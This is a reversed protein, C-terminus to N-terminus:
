HFRKERKLRQYHEPDRQKFARAPNGGAVSLPEIRGAVVSGAAIIAGEGIWAGPLVLVDDGFWVNDGITVPKRVVESDYPLATAGQWRHNVTIIKCGRGSHFNDGFTVGGDGHVTMGNFHCNAGIRVTRAPIETRGNVRLGPGAEAARLRVLSTWYARAWARRAPKTIAGVKGAIRHWITLIAELM